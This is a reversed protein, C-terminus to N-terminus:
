IICYICYLIDYIIGAATQYWALVRILVAKNDIEGKTVSVMTM